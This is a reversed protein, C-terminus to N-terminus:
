ISWDSDSPPPKLGRAEEKPVERDTVKEPPPEEDPEAPAAEQAAPKEAEDPAEDAVPEEPESSEEQAELEKQRSRYIAASILISVFYLVIIPVGLMLQSLADAPTVIAALVLIVVVAQRWMSRLFAPTVIGFFSLVAVVLPLQFLIGCAIGIKIYFDLLFGVALNPKIVQTGFGALFKLMVPTLAFASFAIGLLFLVTTWVVLPRVIRREKKLLGPVVFGWVQQAILPLGLLLGCLMALKFRSFFAEQPKIFQAEGVTIKILVDLLRGSVFWAGLSLLLIVLTANILVSRLEDLHEMFSMDSKPAPPKRRALWVALGLFLLLEVLVIIAWDTANLYAYTANAAAVIRVWLQDLWEPIRM